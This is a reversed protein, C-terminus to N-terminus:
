TELLSTFLLNYPQMASSSGRGYTTLGLPANPQLAGLGGNGRRPSRFCIGGDTTLQDGVAAQGDVEMRKRRGHIRGLRRESLFAEM